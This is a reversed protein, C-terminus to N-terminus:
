SVTLHFRIPLTPKVARSVHCLSCVLHCNRHFSTTSQEVAHPSQGAMQACIDVCFVLPLPPLLITQRKFDLLFSFTAVKNTPNKKIACLIEFVNDVVFSAFRLLIDPFNFM